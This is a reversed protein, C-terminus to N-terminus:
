FWPGTRAQSQMGISIFEKEQGAFSFKELFVGTNVGYHAGSVLFSALNEIINRRL